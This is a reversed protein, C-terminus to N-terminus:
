FRIIRISTENSIDIFVPIINEPLLSEIMEPWEILCYHGSYFYDEYGIDYVEEITKVRYFDFHYVPNHETTDYVNILAFTPSSVIDRVNLVECIAKIFTTKGAGMEGYFAFLREDPYKQILESALKVLENTSHCVFESLKKGETNMTVM